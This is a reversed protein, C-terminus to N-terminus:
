ELLAKCEKLYTKYDHVSWVSVTGDGEELPHFEVYTIGKVKSDKLSETHYERDFPKKDVGFVWKMNQDIILHDSFVAYVENRYRVVIHGDTVGCLNPFVFAGDKIVPRIITKYDEQVVVFFVEVGDSIDITKGEHIFEFSITKPDQCIGQQAYLIFLFFFFLPIYILKM